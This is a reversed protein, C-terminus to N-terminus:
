AHLRSCRCPSRPRSPSIETVETSTAPQQCSSTTRRAAAWCGAGLVWCGAGLVWDVSLVVAVACKDTTARASKVTTRNRHDPLLVSQARRGFEAVVPGGEFWISVPRPTAANALVHQRSTRSHAHRARNAYNRGVSTARRDRARRQHADSFGDH